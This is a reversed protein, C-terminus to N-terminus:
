DEKLGILHKTPGFSSKRWTSNKHVGAAQRIGEHGHPVSFSQGYPGASATSEHMFQNIEKSSPYTTLGVPIVIASRNYEKQLLILLSYIFMILGAMELSEQVTILLGTFLEQDTGVAEFRKGELMEIGLAGIVYTAASLCFWLKATRHLKRWVPYFLGTLLLVGVGYGVIWSYHLFGSLNFGNKIPAMLREHIMFLEDYGLIIFLLSFLLWVLGPRSAKRAAQWVILLFLSNVLFLSGSFFSPINYELDLDFLPVLGFVTPHNLVYRMFLGCLHALVLFVAIASAAIIVKRPNIVINQQTM